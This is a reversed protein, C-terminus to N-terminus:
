RDEVGFYKSNEEVETIFKNLREIEKELKEIYERNDDFWIDWQKWIECHKKRIMMGKENCLVKIGNIEYKLEDM